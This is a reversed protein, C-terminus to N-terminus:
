AKVISLLKIFAKHNVILNVITEIIVILTNANAKAKSSLNELFEM